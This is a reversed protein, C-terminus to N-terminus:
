KGYVGQQIENWYKQQFITKDCDEVGQNDYFSIKPMRNLPAPPYTNLSKFIQNLASASLHNSHFDLQDFSNEAPLSVSELLNESCDLYMLAKQVSLDLTTLKNVDCDLRQLHPMQSLFGASSFACNMINLTNIINDDDVELSSLDDCSFCDVDTLGPLGRLSLSTLGASSYRFTKLDPHNGFEFSTLKPLSFLTVSTLKSCGTLDLDVLDPWDVMSITTLNPCSSSLDLKQINMFGDLSFDKMEPLDGMQLNGIPILTGELRLFDLEEAWIRVQYSKANGYRYAVTSRDPSEIKQLRGDGWEIAMRGGGAHVELQKWEGSADVTFQITNADTLEPIEFDDGFVRLDEKSCSNFTLIICIGILSFWLKKQKM